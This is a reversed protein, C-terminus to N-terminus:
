FFCATKEKGDETRFVIEIGEGGVLVKMGLRIMRGVLTNVSTHESDAYEKLVDYTATPVTISMAHTEYTLKARSM